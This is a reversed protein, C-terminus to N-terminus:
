LRVNRMAENRNSPSPELMDIDALKEYGEVMQSAFVLWIENRQQDAFPSSQQETGAEETQSSEGM